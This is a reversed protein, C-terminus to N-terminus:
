EPADPTRQRPAAVGDPDMRLLVAGVWVFWAWLLLGYLLYASPALYRTAEAEMGVGGTVVGLWALIAPFPGRAMAAAILAIGLASFVGVVPATNNEAIIAEAAVAFVDRAGPAATVFQDSLSALVLSGRSTVPIALFLSWSVIGILAGVLALSRPRPIALFVAAFVIVPLISPITWLIQEVTYVIRNEAIFRLTAAGGYEPPPAIVDAIMALIMLGVFLLAAVGAIRFLGRWDEQDMTRIPITRSENRFTM